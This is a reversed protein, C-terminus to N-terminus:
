PKEVDHILIFKIEAFNYLALDSNTIDASVFIVKRILEGQLQKISDIITHVHIAEEIIEDSKITILLEDMDLEDSKIKTTEFLVHKSKEKDITAGDPFLKKMRPQEPMIADLTDKLKGM